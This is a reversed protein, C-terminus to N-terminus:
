ATAETETPNGTLQNPDSNEPTIVNRPRRGAALELPTEGGYTVASSIALCAQRVLNSYKM